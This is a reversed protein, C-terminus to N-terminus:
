GKISGVTLGQIFYRQFFPYVILIPGLVIMCLAMRAGETPVNALMQSSNDIYASNEALQQINALMNQLLFQLTYLKPETIFMLPYYWDNWFTLTSFLAITAIGPVAIPLVLTFFIRYESAGDLKGSEIISEPVGTSFFTRMIIIYWANNALPLILAWVTNSLHLVNTCVMYWAVLGGSFLMTFFQYFTFIQRYKFDKRSLPYAYLTVTLTSILTGVVTIIITMLYSMAITKGASFIYQYADLTFDSPWFTYGHNAIGSESTFSISIVLIVPMLCLLVLIIMFLHLLVYSLKLKKMKKLSM